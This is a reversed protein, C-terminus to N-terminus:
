ERQVGLKDKRALGLWALGLFAAMLVADIALTLPMGLSKVDKDFEHLVTVSMPDLTALMGKAGFYSPSVLGGVSAAGGLAPIVGSFVIQLVIIGLAAFLAVESTKAWSSVALGLGISAMATGFLVLAVKIPPGGAVAVLSTVYAIGFALAAGVFSLWLLKAALFADRRIGVSREHVYMHHEKVIQMSAILLGAIVVVIVLVAQFAKRFFMTTIVHQREKYFDDGNLAQDALEDSLGTLDMAALKEPSVHLKRAVELTNIDLKTNIILGLFLAVLPGFALAFFLAGKDKLFAQANRVFMARLQRCFSTVGPGPVADTPPAKVIPKQKLATIAGSVKENSLFKRELQAATEEQVSSTADSAVVKNLDRYDTAGMFPLMAMPDGAYVLRGRCMFLLTDFDELNVDHHTIMLVLRGSAVRKRLERLIREESGVDVNSTVEDVFLVPPDAVLETALLIRKRQGLSLEALRKKRTDPSLNVDLIAQDIRRDIEAKGIGPVRLRGACRLWQQVTLGPICANEDAVYGISPRLEELREVVDFGNYLVSGRSPRSRGSLLGLLVSKGSGSLGKVAVLEGPRLVIDVNQLVPKEGGKGDPVLFALGRAEIKLQGASAAPDLAAGLLRLDVGGIQLHTGAGVGRTEGKKLEEKNLCTYNTSGLDTVTVGSGDFRLEAHRASVQDSALVLDCDAARGIVVRGERWPAERVTRPQDTERLRVVDRALDLDYWEKILRVGHELFATEKVGRGTGPAPTGAAEVPLDGGFRIAIPVNGFTVTQGSRLRRSGEVLRGGVFSPCPQPFPVLLVRDGRRILKAHQRSISADWIPCGCDETRGISLSGGDDLVFPREDGEITIFVNPPSRPDGRDSSTTM